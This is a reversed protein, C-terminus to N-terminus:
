MAVCFGVSTAFPFLPMNTNDVTSCKGGTGCDADTCCYQACSADGASDYELCSTGGTCTTAPMQDDCTKCVADTGAGAFCVFGINNGGSDQDFDCVEGAACGTNTVPNCESGTGADNAAVTTVCSGGSPPMKPPSCSFPNATSGGAGISGGTGTATTTGSTGTTGSSGATSGGTHTTSRTTTSGAGAGGVSVTCGTWMGFLATVTMGVFWIRSKM